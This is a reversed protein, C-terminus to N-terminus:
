RCVTRESAACRGALRHRLELARVARPLRGSRAAAEAALGPFVEHWLRTAVACPEVIDSVRRLARHSAALSWCRCCLLVLVITRCISALPILACTWGLVM